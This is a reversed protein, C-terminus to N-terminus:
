YKNRFRNKCRVKPLLQGRGHAIDWSKALSDNLSGKNFALSVAEMLAVCEDTCVSAPTWGSKLRRAELLFVHLWDTIRAVDHEVSFMQSVPLWKGQVNTVIAYYFVCRQSRAGEPKKCIRGTADIYLTVPGKESVM